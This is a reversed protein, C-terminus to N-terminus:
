EVPPIMVRDLMHVVGNLAHLDATIVTADEVQVEGGEEVITLTEGPLVSSVVSNSLDTLPENGGIVMHFRVIRGLETADVAPAARWAEDTPSFVTIPSDAFSRIDPVGVAVAHADATSWAGVHLLQEWVTPPRLVADITHLRGNGVQIDRTVLRAEGNFPLSRASDVVVSVGHGWANRLRSDLKGPLADAPWDGDFLHYPATRTENTPASAWRAVADQTPAFLTFPGETFRLIENLTPNSRFWQRISELGLHRLAAPINPAETVDGIVTLGGNRADIHEIVEADNVQNISGTPFFMAQGTRTVVYPPPPEPVGGEVILYSLLTDLEAPQLTALEVGYEEFAADSPAFVTLSQQSDLLEDLEAVRLFQTFTNLRPDQAVLEFLSSDETQEPDLSSTCGLMLASVLYFM